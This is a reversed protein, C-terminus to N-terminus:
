RQCRIAVFELDVVTDVRGREESARHLEGHIAPWEVTKKENACVEQFKEFEKWCVQWRVGLGYRDGWDCSM